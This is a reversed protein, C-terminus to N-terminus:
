HLAFELKKDTFSPSYKDASLSKSCLKRIDWPYIKKNKTKGGLIDKKTVM